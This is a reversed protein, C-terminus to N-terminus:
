PHNNPNDVALGELIAANNLENDASVLIYTYLTSVSSAVLEDYILLATALQLADYGRLQRTEAVSIARNALTPTLDTLRFHSVLESKFHSIAYTADPSSLSGSKARRALAAVVEISTIRNIMIVNKSTTDTLKRVWDTGIESVYRKVLASSDFFYYGM